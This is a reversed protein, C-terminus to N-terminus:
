IKAGKMVPLDLEYTKRREVLEDQMQLETHKDIKYFFLMVVGIFFPIAPFISMMMRIGRLATETQEAGAVYGFYFLLWGSLAGGLSLGMKLGFTTASFAMGTARRGTRWESYDAVDAMMAWLMPITPAYSLSVLVQFVFILLISSPPIFVYASAFVATLFLCVRFTNRKGFRIALPKSFLIGVLTVGMGLMNFLSFLDARKVYYTFYYLTVSGRLSLYIFIFVTLFFLAVWASNHTLDSIDQKLSTKQKPDPKVREKTSFFTIVFFIVALTCFISMTFQYGKAQNVVSVEYSLNDKDPDTFHESLRVQIPESESSVTKLSLPKTLAPAMNDGTRVIVPIVLSCLGGKQDNASVTLRDQGARSEALILQSDEINTNVITGSDTKVTYVLSDGDDDSFFETLNIQKKGFGKDLIIEPRSKVKPASNGPIKVALSFQSNETSQLRDKATVIVNTVGIGAEILKLHNEVIEARAVDANQVTVKYTLPGYAGADFVPTLNIDYHGFGKELTLDSVPTKLVPIEPVPKTVKVFFDKEAVHGNRDNARVIIKALGPSEPKITLLSDKVNFQVITKNDVGLANVLPVSLGQVVFAALMAFIFRYSALGTREISDGTLVGTLACYPVNNVTYIMMMCNYTIFAYIIRGVASLNPTTFMLIGIIGFPLASWLVWPRFKGWRTNTRDAIAGMMPDNIADWIRTALFIWGAIAASIGLVDTYFFMLFMMVAQFIFNAASDGLSYGIKERVSLKQ